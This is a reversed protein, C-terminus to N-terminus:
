PLNLGDLLTGFKSKDFRKIRARTKSDLFGYYAEKDQTVDAWLTAYLQAEEELRDAKNDLGEKCAREVDELASQRPSAEQQLAEAEKLAWSREADRVLYRHHVSEDVLPLLIDDM